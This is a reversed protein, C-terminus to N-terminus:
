KDSTPNAFTFIEVATEVTVLRKESRETWFFFFYLFASCLEILDIIRLTERM